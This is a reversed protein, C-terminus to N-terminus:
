RSQLEVVKFAITERAGQRDVDLIVEDGVFLDWMVFDIDAPRRVEHGNIFQIVDGPLLGAKHAPCDRIINVVLCGSEATIGRQQRFPKALGRVDEVKYGAWPDRRRGHRIIEDAVARARNIPIAFGLGVNGGSPSFIMTNVGIAHGAGNVLPGGSNGPNIAADTQIMDQYLREGNAVRASLMRDTASVVGVSVTPQPDAILPGFPNGIAITWEGIILDDSDGMAIAKLEVVEARLVALDTREDAGVLTVALERGDPMTVSHLEDAGEIVHFNTLIYGRSDFVFGSGVAEVRREEVRAPGGPIEFLDWFESFLPSYPRRTHYQIVNISVVAPAAREIARVIANRRSSDIDDQAAVPWVYLVAFLVLAIRKSWFM